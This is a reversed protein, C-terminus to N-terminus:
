ERVQNNNIKKCKNTFILQCYKEGGRAGNLNKVETWHYRCTCLMLDINCTQGQSQSPWAPLSYKPNM